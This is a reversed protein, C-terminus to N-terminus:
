NKLHKLDLFTKKDAESLIKKCLPLYSDPESGEAQSNRSRKNLWMWM